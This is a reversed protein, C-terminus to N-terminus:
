PRVASPSPERVVTPAPTQPNVYGHLPTNCVGWWVDRLPHISPRRLPRYPRRIMARPSVGPRISYAWWVAGRARISSRGARIRGCRTGPGGLTEGQAIIRRGTLGGRTRTNAGYRPARCPTHLVGRCPYSGEPWRGAGPVHIRGTGPRGTPRICYAGVRTGAGVFWCPRLGWRM